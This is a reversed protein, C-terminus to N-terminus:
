GVGQGLWPLAFSSSGAKLHAKYPCAQYDEFAFTSEPEQVQMGVIGRGCAQAQRWHTGLDSVLHESSSGGLSVVLDGGAVGCSTCAARLVLVEFTGSAALTWPESALVKDAAMGPHANRSVGAADGTGGVVDHYM